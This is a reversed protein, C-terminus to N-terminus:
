GDGRHHLRLRAGARRAPYLDAGHAHRVRGDVVQRAPVLPRLLDGVGADVAADVVAEGVLGALLDAAAGRPHHEVLDCGRQRALAASTRAMAWRITGASAGTM